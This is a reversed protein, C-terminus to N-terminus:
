NISKACAKLSTTPTSRCSTTKTQGSLIGSASRAICQCREANSAAQRASDALSRSLGADILDEELNNSVTSLADRVDFHVSISSSLPNGSLDRIDTTVTLTYSGDSFEGLPDIACSINDSTRIEIPYCSGGLSSTLQVSGECASSLENGSLGTVEKNFDLKYAATGVLTSYAEPTTIAVSPNRSVEAKPTTKQSYEGEIEIACSAMVFTILVLLTPLLNKTCIMPVGKQHM